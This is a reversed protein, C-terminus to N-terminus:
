YECTVGFEKELAKVTEEVGHSDVLLSIDVESTTILFIMDEVGATTKFVHAAVGSMQRMEEGFLQIKCNGNSVMPDLLPYEERFRNITALLKVIDESPATFSLNVTSGKSASQSIMDINVGAEAFRSFIDAIVKMDDPISSFHILSVDETVKLRTVGHM